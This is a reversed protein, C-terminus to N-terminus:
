QKVMFSSKCSCGGVASPNTSVQFASRILEEVYDVTAGKVFDYSVNDVVLKVGDREFIRDDSNTKDDLSFDYQFGSCGGAEVSLRLMKEQHEGAQLEKMRRVCSETMLVSDPAEVQPQSQPQSLASSASSNLLRYNQRIRTTFLPVIRRILSSSSSAM